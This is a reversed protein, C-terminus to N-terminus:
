IIDVVSVGSLVRFLKKFIGGARPTIEVKNEEGEKRSFCVGIFQRPNKFSSIIHMELRLRRAIGYFVKTDLKARRIHLVIMSINGDTNKFSDRTGGAIYARNEARRQQLIPCLEYLSNYSNTHKVNNFKEFQRLCGIKLARIQGGEYHRISYKLDGIMKKYVPDKPVSRHIEHTATPISM